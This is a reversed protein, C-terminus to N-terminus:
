HRRPVPATEYRTATGTTGDDGPATWKLVISGAQTGTSAVLDTITGPRWRTKPQRQQRHQVAAVLQRSRGQGECRFFIPEQQRRPRQGDSIRSVGAAQRPPAIGV